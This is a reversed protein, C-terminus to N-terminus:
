DSNRELDLRRWLDLPLHPPFAVVIGKDTHSSALTPDGVTGICYKAVKDIMTSVSGLKVM